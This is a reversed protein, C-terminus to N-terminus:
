SGGIATLTMQHQIFHTLPPIISTILVNFYYSFTHSSISGGGVRDAVDDVGATLVMSELMRHARSYEPGLVHCLVPGFVLGLTLVLGIIPSHSLM